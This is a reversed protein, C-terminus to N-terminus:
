IAAIASAATKVHNVIERDCWYAVSAVFLWFALPEMFRRWTAFASLLAATLALILAKSLSGSVSLVTLGIMAGIIPAKVITRYHTRVFTLMREDIEDDSFDEAIKRHTDIAM